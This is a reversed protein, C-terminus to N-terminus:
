RLRPARRAPRLQGHFTVPAEARREVEAARCRGSRAGFRLQASAPGFPERGANRIKATMQITQGPFVAPTPRRSRSSRSTKPRTRAATSSASRAGITALAEAASAVAADWGAKRLDTVLVVERAPEAAAALHRGAAALVAGM